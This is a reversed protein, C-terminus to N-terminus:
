CFIIVFIISDGAKETLFFAGSGTKQIHVCNTSDIALGGADKPAAIFKL